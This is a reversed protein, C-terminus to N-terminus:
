GAQIGEILGQLAERMNLGLEQELWAWEGAPNIELFYLKGQKDRIFDFAGYVLGLEDMFRYCANVVVDELAIEEYELQTGPRRWDILNEKSRISVAFYTKGFFTVRVDEIRDIEEQLYTPCLRLAKEDQLDKLNPNHTYASYCGSQTVQLGCYVPKCILGGKAEKIEQFALPSNAVVTKPVTFGCDHAIRLQYLKREGILTAHLSNIWPVRLALFTGELFHRGEQRIYPISEPDLESVPPPILARRYWIVSVDELAISHHEDSIIGNIGQSNVRYEIEISSPFRDVNFRYYPIGHKELYLIFFDVTLDDTNTLILLM